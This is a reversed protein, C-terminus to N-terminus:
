EAFLVAGFRNPHHFGRTYTESWATYETQELMDGNAWYVGTAFDRGESLIPSRTTHLLTLAMEETISRLRRQLVSALIPDIGPPRPIASM